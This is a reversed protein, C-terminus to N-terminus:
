AKGAVFLLGYYYFARPDAYWAALEQRARDFTDEDLLGAAFTDRLPELWGNDTDDPEPVMDVFISGMDDPGPYQMRQAKIQMSLDTLGAETFWESCKRGAHLDVYGLEPM